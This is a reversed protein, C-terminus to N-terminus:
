NKKSTSSDEKKEKGSCCSMKCGKGMKCEMKEGKKIEKKPENQASVSLSSALFVISLIATLRKM